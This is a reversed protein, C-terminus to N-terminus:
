LAVRHIAHLVLASVREAAIDLIFETATADTSSDVRLGRSWRDPQYRSLMSMAYLVGWWALLLDIERGTADLAPVIWAVERKQDTPYPAGKAIVRRGREAASGISEPEQWRVKVCNGWQPDGLVGPPNLPECGVLAPYRTALWESIGETSQAAQFCEIPIGALCGEIHPTRILVAADRPVASEKPFLGLTPPFAYASPLPRERTEPLMQWLRGIECGSQLSESGLIAAVQAFSGSEGDNRVLLNAFEVDESLNPCTIGHGHLQWQDGPVPACASISRAAQSLGYFLLIARTEYGVSFSARLLQESQELASGFIRRRAGSGAYGPPSSRMSRLKRWPQEFDSDPYTGM